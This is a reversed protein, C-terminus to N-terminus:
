KEYIDRRNTTEFTLAEVERAYFWYTAKRHFEPPGLNVWYVFGIGNHWTPGKVIVGHTKLSTIKVWAGVRLPKRTFLYTTLSAVTLAVSGIFGWATLSNEPM